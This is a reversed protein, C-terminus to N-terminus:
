EADHDSCALLLLECTSIVEGILLPNSRDAGAGAGPDVGLRLPFSRGSSYPIAVGVEAAQEAATQGTSIVEGILLPNSGM